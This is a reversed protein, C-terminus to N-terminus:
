TRQLPEIRALAAAEKTRAEHLDVAQQLNLWLQPTTGFYSALRLATSSTVARRGRVIGNLRQFPVDIADAVQRQTLKLPRIFEELLIEGPPTPPRHSPEGTRSILM